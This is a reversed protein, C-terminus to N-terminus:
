HVGDRIVVIEGKKRLVIGVNALGRIQYYVFDTLVCGRICSIPGIQEMPLTINQSGRGPSTDRWHDLLQLPFPPLPLRRISRRRGSAAGPLPFAVPFNFRLGSHRM